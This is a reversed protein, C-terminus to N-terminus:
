TQRSPNMSAGRAPWNGYTREASEEPSSEFRNGQLFNELSKGLRFNWLSSGWAFLGFHFKRLSPERAFLEWIFKGRSEGARLM